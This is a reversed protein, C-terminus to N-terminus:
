RQLHLVWFVLLCCTTYIPVFKRWADIYYPEIKSFTCDFRIWLAFFYAGNTVAIDYAVLFLMIWHWHEILYPQRKILPDGRRKVFKQRVKM